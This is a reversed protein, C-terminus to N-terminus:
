SEPNANSPGSFLTRREDSTLPEPLGYVDEVGAYARRTGDRAAIAEFWRRLHPLAELDQGHAAHPVIWPYCAIDAISYSDGIIWERQALRKDLVRYLRDLERTYRTMAHDIRQDCFVRFYGAQGAMPGLSSAQWFLWQLTEQQLTPEPSLGHGTKTALYHLIACSEFVTVPRTHDCPDVLVPIKNNPSLASFEPTFQEGKSLRIPILHYPLNFSELYLRVKQGNPTASYYLSLM